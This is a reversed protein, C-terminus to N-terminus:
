SELAPEAVSNAAQKTELAKAEKKAKREAAKQKKAELEEPSTQALKEAKASKKAAKAEEKVLEEATMTKVRVLTTQKTGQYESHKKVTGRIIFKQGLALNSEVNGSNFWAVANGDATVLKHLYKQGFESDIVIIKSVLVDQLTLKEDITGVFKSDRTMRLEVEKMAQREIERIYYPILSGAIGALSHDVTSQVTAVYLNHEYDSRSEKAALDTRAYELAKEATAKDEDTVPREAVWRKWEAFAEREKQDPPNLYRLANSATSKLAESLRARSRSCWGDIRVLTAVVTLFENMSFRPRWGGGWFGGMDEEAAACEDFASLLQELLAAVAHPDTNGLFDQTCNRGVQKWTGDTHRVIFTEQRTRIVKKCHDCNEPTATRYQVPLQTEFGPVIRLLNIGKGQDDTLHQLTAVFTWGALRPTKGTVVVEQFRIYVLEGAEKATEIHESKTLRALKRGAKHYPFDTTKGLTYGIADTGLKSAKRVLKDLKRTLEFINEEPVSYTQTAVETEVAATTKTM